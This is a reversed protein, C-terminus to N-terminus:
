DEGEEDDEGSNRSKIKSKLFELNKIQEKKREEYFKYIEEYDCLPLGKLDRIYNIYCWLTFDPMDQPQEKFKPLIPVIDVAQEVVRTLQGFTSLGDQLDAQSLQNPNIKADQGAKQALGGWEKAERVDGKATAMEEKVRYRIYNLLAETHMATKEPYNNKLLGYKREFNQYEDRSYGTGWRYVVEDTLDFEASKPLVTGSPEFASDNWNYFRYQPLALNKMYVGFGDGDNGNFSKEWIDWIFPRDILQLFKQANDMVINGRRDYVMSRICEKCYPIRKKTHLPNYSIYFNKIMVKVKGCHVCLLQNEQPDVDTQYNNYNPSLVGDEASKAVSNIIEKKTKSITGKTKKKTKKEAM